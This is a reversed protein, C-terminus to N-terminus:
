PKFRFSYGLSIFSQSTLSTHVTTGASLDIQHNSHLIYAFGANFNLSNYQNNYFLIYPESFIMLKSTIQSWVNCTALYSTNPMLDNYVLTNVRRYAVNSTISTKPSLPFTASIKHFQGMREPNNKDTPILIHSILAVRKLLQIKTGIQLHQFSTSKINYTSPNNDVLLSQTFETGLRIEAKPHLGYRISTTPLSFQYSYNPEEKQFTTNFANEFQFYGTELVYSNDSQSPRDTTIQATSSNIQFSILFYITLRILRHFSTM